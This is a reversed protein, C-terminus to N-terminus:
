FLSVDFDTGRGCLAFQEINNEKYNLANPKKPRNSISISSTSMRLAIKSYRKRM